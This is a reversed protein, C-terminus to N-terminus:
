IKTIMDITNKLNFIGKNSLSTPVVLIYNYFCYKKLETKAHKLNEQKIDCLTWYVHNLIDDKNHILM